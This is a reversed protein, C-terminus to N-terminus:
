QGSHRKGGQQSGQLGMLVAQDKATLETPNERVRARQMRARSTPSPPRPPPNMLQADKLSMTANNYSSIVPQNHDRGITAKMLGKMWERVLVPDDSSFYHPKEREHLVKFGYKGPNTNEDAIVRYGKMSIYGKIKSASPDRLIVLDSGKLALYRPKWTNYREGKKRMWGELDVPRIREMVPGSGDGSQGDRLSSKNEGVGSREEAGPGASGVSAQRGHGGGPTPSPAGVAASYGGLKTGAKHSGNSVQSARSRRATDGASDYTPGSTPLSIQNKFDGSGSSSTGHGGGSARGGLRNFGLKSFTGKGGSRGEESDFNASGPPPPAAKRNRNSGFSSFFSSREPGSSAKAPGERRRGPSTVPSGGSPGPRQQTQPRMSVLAEDALQSLSKGSPLGPQQPGQPSSTTPGSVDRSSSPEHTIITGRSVERHAMSPDSPSETDQMPAGLGLGHNAGAAAAAASSAAAAPRQSSDASAHPSSLPQSSASPADAALRPSQAGAVGGKLEKIANAVQFRKGFAIIDIEKLINIDMELLVDGSIEHESFKSVISTEDFGRSRAWEVVEDVSWEHPDGRPVAPRGSTPTHPSSIAAPTAAAASAASPINVSKPTDRGGLVSTPATSGVDTTGNASSTDTQSPARRQVNESSQRNVPGSAQHGESQTLMPSGSVASDPVNEAAQPGGPVAQQPGGMRLSAASADHDTTSGAVPSLGGGHQEGEPADDLEDPPNDARLLEQEGTAQSIPQSEVSSQNLFRPSTNSPAGLLPSHLRTQQDQKHEYDGLGAASGESDSDDSMDVGDIPAVKSRQSDDPLNGQAAAEKREAEKQLLLERQRTEEEEFLKQAQAKRAVDEAKEKDAASTANAKAKAALAARAAGRSRYESQDGDDSAEEDYENVSEATRESQFSRRRPSSTGGARGKGKLEDLAQEVDAMTSKMTTGDSLQMGESGSATHTTAAATTAGGANLALAKANMALDHDLTTYSFPFLGTDGAENTGQWWGDGYADDQEVVRVTEGVKFSVEDPNEAVFEHLGYVKEVPPAAM